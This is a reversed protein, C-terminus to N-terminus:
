TLRQSKVADLSSGGPVKPRPPWGTPHRRGFALDTRVSGRYQTKVGGLSLNSKLPDVSARMDGM